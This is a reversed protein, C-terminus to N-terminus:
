ATWYDVKKKIYRQEEQTIGFHKFLMEDTWAVKTDMLPIFKFTKKSTDPTPKRLGLLFRSFYTQLFGQFNNAEKLSDFSGAVSYTETSIQSKNLIFFHEPKSLVKHPTDGGGGSVRPFAVQYKDVEQINRSILNQSIREIKKGRHFCEIKGEEYKNNGKFSNTSLGFPKRSWVIEEVFQKGKHKKIVKNLIPHAESHPVIIDYNSLSFESTKVGNNLKVKGKFERDWHFFCVGGRIKVTPFVSRTDEFYRIYRVKNEKIIKSRFEDLGKGGSFWRAPIVVLMQSIDKSNILSEVLLNYIPVASKGHGGDEEQYPPNGIAVIKKGVAKEKIYDVMKDLEKQFKVKDLRGDIESLYAGNKINCNEKIQHSKENGYFTRRSLYYHREDPALAFYRNSEYLEKAVDQKSVTGKRHLTSMLATALLIEGAKCFPNFFVYDNSSLVDSEELCKVLEVAKDMKMIPQDRGKTEGLIDVVHTNIYNIKRRASM